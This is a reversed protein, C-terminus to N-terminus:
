KNKTGVRGHRHRRIWAMRWGEEPLIGRHGFSVRPNGCAWPGERDDYDESPPTDAFDLSMANEFFAKVEEQFTGQNGKLAFVFDAGKAQILKAHEKQCGMADMTVICGSIELLELLRPVATIENSKADVQTQGLVCQNASSWASVMHIAAKGSAHDFSNRLTKGDLSVVDGDTKERVCAIWRSFCEQFALPDLRSFVRGFTDHSPIGNPLHLFTKFWKEKSKGFLAIETWEEAGCIVACITIAIIDPLLHLKKRDIRPDSLFRFHRVLPPTKRIAQAM